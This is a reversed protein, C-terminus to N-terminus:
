PIEDSELPQQIELIPKNIIDGLLDRRRNNGTKFIVRMRDFITKKLPIAHLGIIAPFKAM